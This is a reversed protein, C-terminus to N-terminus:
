GSVLTRLLGCLTSCSLGGRSKKSSHSNQILGSLFLGWPTHSAEPQRQLTARQKYSPNWGHVLKHLSVKHEM